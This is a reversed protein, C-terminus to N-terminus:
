REGGDIYALYSQRRWAPIKAIEEETWHYRSALRHVQELLDFQALWLCELAGALLDPAQATSRGCEPCAVDLQFGVLPDFEEMARDISDSIEKEAIGAARLDELPPDAFLSAALPATGDAGNELWKRQDSGTPRRVWAVREGIKVPVLETRHAQAALAAIEAPRLQLEGEAGCDAYGCRIRWVLPQASDGGALAIVAEIRTGLPLDWIAQESPPNGSQTQSCRALLKTVLCAREVEAFEVSLDRMDSGFVRLAVPRDRSEIPLWEPLPPFQVTQSM